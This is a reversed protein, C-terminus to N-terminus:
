DLLPDVLALLRDIAGRNADLVARGAEGMSIRRPASDLLKAVGDALEDSGAVVRAAGAEIFLDAIEQSNFNHPGTLVPRGLSAPELLNHGGIPVLSGAVFAVDAAAYFMMLEGMTDGLLISVTTTVPEGSSRSLFAEGRKALLERVADFRQPHRPVLILLADPFRALVRRHADLVREEEGEHTSGAVWVPRHAANHRRWGLGRAEVEAPPAFDFKINGTVHTREPAAGISRFRGADAESQAGIVIGHSLVERFLPVLRRYRGVSRPSLRASALVLPVQRRGCEAYLNPWLETELIMALRPQVRDFFRRVAGPLDFPVYCLHVRDRYLQRARAAGTPTVTTLVLSQGPRRALLRRVLPEAAQVEGVSVAHIWIPRGPIAPGFGFREGIRERYSPDRLGRWFHMALAVPAALLYILVNYAFRM